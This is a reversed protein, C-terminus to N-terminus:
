KKLITTKGFQFTTATRGQYITEFQKARATIAFINCQYKLLFFFFFILTFFSLKLYKVIVRTFYSQLLQHIIFAFASETSFIVYEAHYINVFLFTSFTYWNNSIKVLFQSVSHKLDDISRIVWLFLCIFLYYLYLKTFYYVSELFLPDQIQIQFFYLHYHGLSMLNHFVM